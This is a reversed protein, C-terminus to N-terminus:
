DKKVTSAWPMARILTGVSSGIQNVKAESMDRKLRRLAMRVALRAIIPAVMKLVALWPIPNDPLAELVENLSAEERAIKETNATKVM